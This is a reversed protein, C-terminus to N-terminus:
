PSIGDINKSAKRVLSKLAPSKGHFIRGCATIAIAGKVKKMDRNDICGPKVYFCVCSRPVLLIPTKDGISYFPFALRKKGGINLGVQSITLDFASLNVADICLGSRGQGDLWLKPTVKIKARDKLIGRWTNLVGLTAGVVAVGFTLQDKVEWAM